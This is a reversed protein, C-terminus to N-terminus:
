VWICSSFERLHKNCFGIADSLPQWQYIGLIEVPYSEVDDVFAFDVSILRFDELVKVHKSRKYIERAREKRGNTKRGTVNRGQAHKKQSGGVSLATKEDLDPIINHLPFPIRFSVSTSFTSSLSFFFSSSFTVHTTTSSSGFFSWPFYFMRAIISCRRFKCRHLTM